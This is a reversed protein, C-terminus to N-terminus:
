GVLGDENFDDFIDNGQEDEHPGATKFANLRERLSTQKPASSGSVAAAHPAPCEVAAEFLADFGAGNTMDGHSSQDAGTSAPPVTDVAAEFLAEFGGECPAVAAEPTSVGTRAAAPRRPGAGDAVQTRMDEAKMPSCPNRNLWDHLSRRWAKVKGDFSRKSVKEKPDPTSPDDRRRSRVPVKRRYTDYAVTNKGYEIQKLRQQLRHADTEVEESASPGGGQTPGFIAERAERGLRRRKCDQDIFEDDVPESLLSEM